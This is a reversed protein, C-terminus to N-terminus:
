KGSELIADYIVAAAAAEVCPVARPVICPDHRGQISLLTDEGAKMDVSRQEMAISPTPKFAVRFEIPMGSSIGGLIGGHNNSETVVKGEKLSFPDNCQSGRMNAAEFGAGFEIGKVAPIGFIAQAIRNEMGDFMPEGLGAPLGEVRCSIIGGISDGEARVADILEYMKKEDREGGISEIRASVSIGKEELLQKAIGGAICLPATLRGSFQGGGSFDRADGYKVMATYDAHGPRPIHRMYEYDSSRTNTNRIIATVPAGCSIGDVLGALFEVADAEKRPTSYKGGPARRVMFASLKEEDIKVGAPLGEICVGIAPAHSQGFITFRFKTGFSNSM